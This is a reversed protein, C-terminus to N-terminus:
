EIFEEMSEYAWELSGSKSMPKKGLELLEGEISYVHAYTQPGNFSHVTLTCKITGGCGLHLLDSAESEPIINSENGCKLCKAPSKRKNKWEDWLSQEKEIERIIDPARKFRSRQARRLSEINEPPNAVMERLESLRTEVFELHSPEQELCELVTIENCEKCWTHRQSMPVYCENGLDYVRPLYRMDRKYDCQDCEYHLIM